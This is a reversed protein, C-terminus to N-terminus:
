RNKGSMKQALRIAASAARPGYLAKLAGVAIRKTSIRLGIKSWQYDYRAFANGGTAAPHSFRRM